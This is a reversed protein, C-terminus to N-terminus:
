VNLFKSLLDFYLILGEAIPKGYGKTFAAKDEPTQLYYSIITLDYYPHGIDCFDWDIVGVVRDLEWMINKPRFDGHLLCVHAPEPRKEELGCLVGEPSGINVFEAPDLTGNKMNASAQSYRPPISTQM